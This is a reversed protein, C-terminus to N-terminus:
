IAEYKNNYEEFFATPKYRIQLYQIDSHGRCIRRGIATQSYGLKMCKRAFLARAAVIDERRIRDTIEQASFGTLSCIKQLIEEM